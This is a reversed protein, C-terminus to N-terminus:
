GQGERAAREQVPAVDPSCTPDPSSHNFPSQIWSVYPVLQHPFGSDYEVAPTQGTSPNAQGKSLQQLSNSPTTLFSSKVTFDLLSEDIGQIDSSSPEKLVM